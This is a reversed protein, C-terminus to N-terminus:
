SRGRTTQFALVRSALAALDTQERASLCGVIGAIDAEFEREVRRALSTGSDTLSVLFARRDAPAPTRRVFGRREARDVLGTISSKDLGLFRALEAMTPQRDRLVGLLRLQILSLDHAAAHSALTSQILFTLQALGDVLGLDEREDPAAAPHTSRM